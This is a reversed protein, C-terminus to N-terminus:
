HADIKRLMLITHELTNFIESMYEEVARSSGPLAYVLTKGWVGAVSRSLLANPKERGFKLRIHEMVGPITKEVLSNVVDPTVDRPGVGTGGTTVIVDTGADRASVLESRIRDADDSVLAPEIRVRWPRDDFFDRLMGSIKPGSKDEAEGRSVRDSVTVVRFTLCKPVHELTDGAKVKGGTEVRCFFGERPMICAGVERYIDCVDGHCKKGIQTVELEVPGIRFGDFVAVGGIDLGRTTVNEAFEGPEFRRGVKDGFREISDTDLSSV